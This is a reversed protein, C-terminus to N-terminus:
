WERGVVDVAIIQISLGRGTEDADSLRHSVRSIKLTM